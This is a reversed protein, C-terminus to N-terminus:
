LEQDIYTDVSYLNPVTKVINVGYCYSLQIRDVCLFKMRAFKSSLYDSRDTSIM